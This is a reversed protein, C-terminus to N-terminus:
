QSIHPILPEFGHTLHPSFLFLPKKGTVPFERTNCLQYRHEYALRKKRTIKHLSQKNESYILINPLASLIIETGEWSFLCLAIGWLVKFSISFAFTFETRYSDIQIHTRSEVSSSQNSISYYEDTLSDMYINVSYAPGLLEQEEQLNVQSFIECHNM